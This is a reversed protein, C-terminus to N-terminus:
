NIAENKKQLKERNREENVLSKGTIQYNEKTNHKSEKRKIKQAHVILNQHTTVTLSTHTYIRLYTCFLKYTIYIVHLIYMDYTM